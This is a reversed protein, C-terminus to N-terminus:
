TETLGIVDTSKTELALAFKGSGQLAFRAGRAWSVFSSLDLCHSTPSARKENQPQLELVAPVEAIQVLLAGDEESLRRGTEIGASVPGKNRALVHWHRGISEVQFVIAYEWFRGPTDVIALHSVFATRRSAEMALNRRSYCKQDTHLACRWM